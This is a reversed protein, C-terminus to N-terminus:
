KMKELVNELFWNMHVDGTSSLSGVSVPAGIPMKEPGIQVFQVPAPVNLIEYLPVTHVVQGSVKKAFQACTVGGIIETYVDGRFGNQVRPDARFTWILSSDHRISGFVWRTGSGKMKMIDISFKKGGMEICWVDAYARSNDKPNLFNARCDEGHPFTSRAMCETSM